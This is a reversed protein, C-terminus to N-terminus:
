TARMARLRRERGDARSQPTEDGIPQLPADPRKVPHPRGEITGVPQSDVQANQVHLM